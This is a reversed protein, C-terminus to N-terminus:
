GFLLVSQCLRLQAFPTASKESREEQQFTRVYQSVVDIKIVMDVQVFSTKHAACSMQRTRRLRDSSPLYSGKWVPLVSKM